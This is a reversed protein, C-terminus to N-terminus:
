PGAPDVIVPSRHGRQASPLNLERGLKAKVREGVNQFYQTRQEPTMGALKRDLEQRIRWVERQTESVQM